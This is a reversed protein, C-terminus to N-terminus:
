RKYEQCHKKESFLKVSCFTFTSTFREKTYTVNKTLVFPPSSGHYTQHQHYNFSPSLVWFYEFPLRTSIFCVCLVFNDKKIRKRCFTQSQSWPDRFICNHPSPTMLLLVSVLFSFPNFNLFSSSGTEFAKKQGSM